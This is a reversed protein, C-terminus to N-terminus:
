KGLGQHELLWIQLESFTDKAGAIVENENIEISTHELNNKLNAWMEYTQDGYSGFYNLISQEETLSLQKKLMESIIQGGLTSGEIVYLVGIAYSVSNIRASFPNEVFRYPEDYFELDLKLREIHRRKKIDILIEEDILEQLRMEVTEYFNLLTKLLSYYEEITSLKKLEKVLVKEVNSHFLKTEEKLKEFLKLFKIQQIM